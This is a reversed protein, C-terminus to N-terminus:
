ASKKQRVVQSSSVKHVCAQNFFAIIQVFYTTKLFFVVNIADLKSIENFSYALEIGTRYFLFIIKFNTSQRKYPPSFNVNANVCNIVYLNLM